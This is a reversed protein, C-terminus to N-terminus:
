IFDLHFTINFTLLVISYEEVANVSKLIDKKLSTTKIYQIVNGAVSQDQFSFDFYDCKAHSHFTDLYETLHYEYFLATQLCWDGNHSTM